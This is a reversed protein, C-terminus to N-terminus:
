PISSSKKSSIGYNTTQIAKNMKGKETFIDPKNVGVCITSYEARKIKIESLLEILLWIQRATFLYICCIRELILINRLFTKGAKHKEFIVDGSLLFNCGPEGIKNSTQRKGM